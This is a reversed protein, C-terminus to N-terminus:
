RSRRFEEVAAQAKHVLEGMAPEDPVTRDLAVFRAEVKVDDSGSAIGVRIESIVRGENAPMSIVTQGIQQAESITEYNNAVVILNAEPVAVALSIAKGLDTDTLIVRYDTRSALEQMVRKAAAGPDTFDFEDRSIRDDPDYALGTIGVRVTRGTGADVVVDRIVYPKVAPFNPLKAKLNASVIPLNLQEKPIQGIGALDGLEQWAPLDWRTLNLADLRSHFTGELM